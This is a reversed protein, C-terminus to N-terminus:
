VIELRSSGLTDSAPLSWVLPLPPPGQMSKLHNMCFTSLQDEQYKKSKARPNEEDALNPFPNWEKQTYCLNMVGLLPHM